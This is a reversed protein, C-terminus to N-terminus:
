FHGTLNISSNASARHYKTLKWGHCPEAGGSHYTRRIASVSWLESCLFGEMDEEIKTNEKFLQRIQILKPNIPDITDVDRERMPIMNLTGAPM